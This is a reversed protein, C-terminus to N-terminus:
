DSGLGDLLGNLLGLLGGLLDDLLGHLGDLVVGVDLVVAVGVESIEREEVALFSEGGSGSGSSLENSSVHLESGLPTLLGQLVELGSVVLSVCVLEHHLEGALELVSNEKVLFGRFGM